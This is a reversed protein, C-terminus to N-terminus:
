IGLDPEFLICEYGSKITWPITHINQVIWHFQGYLSAGKKPQTNNFELSLDGPSIQQQNGEWFRFSLKEPDYPVHLKIESNKESESLNGFSLTLDRGLSSAWPLSKAGKNKSIQTLTFSFCELVLGGKAWGIKTFNMCESFAVFDSFIEWKNQCFLRKKRYLM